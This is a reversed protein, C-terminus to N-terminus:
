HAQYWTPGYGTDVKLPVSLELATEMERVVMARLREFEEEPTEFLLEDHVQIILKARFGEAKLRHHIKIMAIKILEAATGQIPTNVAMREDANRLRQNKSQLGPVNRRRGMLTVVYGDQRAQHLLRDVFLRIGPYTNFYRNILERGEQLTIDLEQAMRFPGAGYMIGFNVVKATRRQDATVEDPPVGFVISATLRHIDRDHRFAEILAEEGALHAM